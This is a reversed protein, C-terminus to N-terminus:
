SVSAVGLLRDHSRDTGRCAGRIADSGLADFGAIAGEAAVAIEPPRGVIADAFEDDAIIDQLPAEAVHVEGANTGDHGRLVGVGDMLAVAV